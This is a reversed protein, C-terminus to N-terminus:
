WEIFSIEDSDIISATICVSSEMPLCLEETTPALYDLKITEMGM